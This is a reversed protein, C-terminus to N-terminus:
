ATVKVLLSDYSRTIIAGTYATGADLRVGFGAPSRYATIKGYDPIFNNEPDETTIRCQLAHSSIRLQEQPPVGSEPTGIRAGAAIRIQAKVLDVGTACETVTHEVQIRPNVEIFYFRGTDADLLFEVTGANDLGVARGVALAADLIAARTKPDLNPAPAIEVIKQHRRQLTCDREYLHVLNGHRDGILQVEIHRARPIYKEVFVESSGFATQAERQAQELAAALDSPGLVVRM